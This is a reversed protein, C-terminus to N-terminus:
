FPISDEDDTSDTSTQEVVEEEEGGAEYGDEENFMSDFGSGNPKIVQVGKLRLSIGGGQMDHPVLQVGLRIISGNGIEFTKPLKHGKADFIPVSAFSGDKNTWSANFKTKFIVNGTAEGTERDKENIFPWNEPQEDANYDKWADKIMKIVPTAEKMPLKIAISYAAGNDSPKCAVTRKDRKSFTYPQDLRAFLAEGKPFTFEKLKAKALTTVM